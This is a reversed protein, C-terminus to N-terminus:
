LEAGSIPMIAKTALWEYIDLYVKSRDVENLIEHRMEPYLLLSVDLVGAKRFSEYARTVGRGNSGVPDKEGAIFLIPTNVDMKQLNEPERIFSLGWMMERFLGLSPKGGCLPDAIYRDVNEPNASLWDFQTRNPAFQKNYPGFVLKSVLDNPRDEAGCVGLIQALKQGSGTMQASQQGTGMIVAADVSGPHCILYTRLVFSGMSHGLMFYPKGSYKQGMRQRLCHVDQVVWNWSGKPGFYLPQAGNAVSQGHGIHDHGVVAFGQETLYQAFAEYRLIYEAVGHMIQLVALVEGDPLWEVGHIQTKGDASPYFFENKVM